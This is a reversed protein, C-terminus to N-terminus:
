GRAGLPRFPSGDLNQFPTYWAKREERDARDRLGAERGWLARKLVWTAGCDFSVYTEPGLDAEFRVCVAANTATRIAFALLDTSRTAM